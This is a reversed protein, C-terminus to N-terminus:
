HVRRRETQAAIGAAKDAAQIAVGILEFVRASREVKDQHPACFGIVWGALVAALIDLGDSAVGVTSRMVSENLRVIPQLQKFIEGAATSLTRSVHRDNTLVDISQRQEITLEAAHTMVVTLVASASTFATCDCDDCKAPGHAEHHHGCLCLRQLDAWATLLALRPDCVTL